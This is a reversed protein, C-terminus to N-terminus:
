YMGLYARKKELNYLPPLFSSLSFPPIFLVKLVFVSDPFCSIHHPLLLETYCLLPLIRMTNNRADSLEQSFVGWM